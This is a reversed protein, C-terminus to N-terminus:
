LRRRILKEISGTFGESQDAFRAAPLRCGAPAHQLSTSGVDPAHRNRPSSQEPKRPPRQAPVARCAFRREPDTSM